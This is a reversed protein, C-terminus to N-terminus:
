VLMRAIQEAIEEGCQEVGGFDMASRYIEELAFHEGEAERLSALAGDMLMERCRDAFRLRVRVGALSGRDIFRQMNIIRSTEETEGVATFSARATPCYIEGIRGCEGILPSYLIRCRKEAIAAHVAELFFPASGYPDTVSYRVKALNRFTNLRYMGKMSVASTYRLEEGYRDGTPFSSVLRQAAATMKETLICRKLLARSTETMEGYARLYRYARAYATRKQESHETIEARAGALVDARWFQGLDVIQGVAGPFAPDATHPATGDLIAASHGNKGALIVADASSPDSSCLLLTVTAGVSVAREACRKMLTSKGTGSGGKLIYVRTLDKEKIMDPYASVFGRATNAGAFYTEAYTGSLPHVNTSLNRM